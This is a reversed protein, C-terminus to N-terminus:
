MKNFIICKFFTFHNASFRGGDDYLWWVDIYGKVKPETTITTADGKYEQSNKKWKQSQSNRHQLKTTLSRGNRQMIPTSVPAEDVDEM